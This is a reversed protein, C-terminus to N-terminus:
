AAARHQNSNGYGCAAINPHAHQHAAAHGLSHLYTFPFRDALLCGNPNAHAHAHTHSVTHTHRNRSPRQRLPDPEPFPDHHAHPYHYRYKNAHRHAVLRSRAGPQSCIVRSLLLPNHCSCDLNLCPSDAQTFEPQVAHIM